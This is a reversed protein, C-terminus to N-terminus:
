TVSSVALREWLGRRGQPLHQGNTYGKSQIPIAGRRNSECAVYNPQLVVGLM